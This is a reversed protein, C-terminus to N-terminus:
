RLAERYARQRSPNWVQVRGRRTPNLRAICDRCPALLELRHRTMTARNSLDGSILRGSKRIRHIQLRLMKYERLTDSFLPANFSCSCNKSAKEFFKQLAESAEQEQM